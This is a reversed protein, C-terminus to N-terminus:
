ISKSVREMIRRDIDDEAGGVEVTKMIKLIAPNKVALGVALCYGTELKTLAEFYERSLYPCTRRIFELDRPNIIKLFLFTNIQSIIDETIKSPIQSVLILGLGFKRGERAILSIKSAVETDKSAFRHAEEIVIGLIDTQNNFKMEKYKNYIKELLIDLLIKQEEISLPYLDIIILNLPYSEEVKMYIEGDVGEIINSYNEINRYNVIDKILKDLLHIIDEGGEMKDKAIINWNRIRQLRSLLSRVVDEKQNYEEKIKDIERLKEENYRYKEKLKEKNTNKNIYELIDILESLFEIKKSLIKSLLNFIRPAQKRQLGLFEEMYDHIIDPKLKGIEINIKKNKEKALKELFEKEKKSFTIVVANDYSLVYDRHVDFLLIPINKNKLENILHAVTTSKGSGTIGFIGTHRIILNKIFLGVIYKKNQLNIIGLPVVTKTDDFSYIKHIEDETPLYVADGPSPPVKPKEQLVKDDKLMGIFIAKGYLIFQVKKIEGYLYDISEYDILREEDMAESKLDEVIAFYIENNIKVKLVSGISVKEKLDPNLIFYFYDPTAERIIYGVKM